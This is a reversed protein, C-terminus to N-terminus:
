TKEFIIPYAVVKGEDRDYYVTYGRLIKHNSSLHLILNGSSVGGSGVEEFEMRVYGDSYKGKFEFSRPNKNGTRGKSRNAIASLSVGSQKFQATGADRLEDNIIDYYKWLGKLDPASKVWLKFKPLFIKVLLFIFVSTAIGATFNLFFDSAM